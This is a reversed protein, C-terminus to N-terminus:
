FVKSEEDEQYCHLWEVVKLIGKKIGGAIDWDNMMRPNVERIQKKANWFIGVNDASYSNKTKLQIKTM